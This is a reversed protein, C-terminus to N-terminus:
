NGSIGAIQKVANCFVDIAETLDKRRQEGTSESFCFSIRLQDYGAAPNRVRADPPYFDYMPIVVLGYDAVMAQIFDDDTRVGGGLFTFVSFFGAAPVTWHFLDKHAGLEKNFGRLMIARNERYVELKGEAVPWLSDRETFPEDARKREHLLAEFGRFAAPNHFLIDASSQVLALEALTATAGEAIELEAESYLFAVRPGPFGIKSGTFLHVTQAPDLSLFPMVRDAQEAFNIYLYPADEVILIGEDRAINLIAERRHASFSFGAPNHGDPITYYFPVFRGAERAARIQNKFVEPRPGEDDMEVSYIAAHQCLGARAMFGAYTPADTIYALPTGSNEFISCVLSIGGTAGVTPVLLEPKMRTQWDGGYVRSFIQRTRMPGLTDGYAFEERTHEPLALPDNLGENATMQELYAQQADLFERPDSVEPHPYGAGLHHIKLGKDQALKRLGPLSASMKRTVSVPQRRVDPAILNAM